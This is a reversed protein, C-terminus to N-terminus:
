PMGIINTRFLSRHCSRHGETRGTVYRRWRELYASAEAKAYLVAPQHRKRPAKRGRPMEGATQMVHSTPMSRLQEDPDLDRGAKQARHEGGFLFFGGAM